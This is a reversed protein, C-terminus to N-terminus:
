TCSETLTFDTKAAVFYGVGRELTDFDNFADPAGPVYVEFRHSTANWRAVYRVKAPDDLGTQNIPKSCNLWGIMNLGPELSIGMSTFASGSYTWTADETMNIFYGVGNELTDDSGLAVWLNTSADYRYLADYKGDISSFVSAVTMDDATLPLSILNWGKVLSKSFTEQPALCTYTGNHYKHGGTIPDGMENNAESYGILLNSTCGSSCNCRLKLVCLTYNGASIPGAPNDWQVRVCTHTPSLWPYWTEPQNYSDNFWNYTNWSFPSMSQDVSVVNVCNKDYYIDLQGSVTEGVRESMNMPVLIDTGYTGTSNEPVFWTEMGYAAMAPVTLVSLMVLAIGIRFIRGSMKRKEGGKNKYLGRYM